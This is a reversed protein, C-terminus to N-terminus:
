AKKISNIYESSYKQPLTEYWKMLTKPGLHDYILSFQKKMKEEHESMLRTPNAELALAFAEKEYRPTPQHHILKKFNTLCFDYYQRTHLIFTHWMEDIIQLPKDIFVSDESKSALYLWKKTEEFIEKAEDYNVDYRDMFGYIINEENECELSENDITDLEQELLAM